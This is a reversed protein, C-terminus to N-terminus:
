ALMGRRDLSWVYACIVIGIVISVLAVVGSHGGMATEWGRLYIKLAYQLLELPVGIVYLPLAIRRMLFLAIAPALLYLEAFFSALVQATPTEAVYAVIKPHLPFAGSYLYYTASGDLVVSVVTLIVIVWVWFTRGM